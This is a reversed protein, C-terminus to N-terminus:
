HIKQGFQDFFNKVNFNMVVYPKVGFAEDLNDVKEATDVNVNRVVHMVIVYILIEVDM